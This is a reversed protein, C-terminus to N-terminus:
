EGKGAKHQLTWLALSRPRLDEELREYLDHWTPWWKSDQAWERLADRVIDAPYAALEKAYVGLTLKGSFETQDKIACKVSLEALWKLTTDPDAPTMSARVTSIAGAVDAGDQLHVEYSRIM